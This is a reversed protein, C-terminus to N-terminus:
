RSAVLHALATAARSGVSGGLAFLSHLFALLTAIANIYGAPRPGTRRILGPSWPIALLSGLLAYCPILWATQSFLSSM